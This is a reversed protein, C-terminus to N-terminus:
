TIPHTDTSCNKGVFCSFWLWESWRDITARWALAICGGKLWRDSYWRGHIITGMGLLTIRLCRRRAILLRRGILAKGDRLRLVGRWASRYIGGAPGAFFFPLPRQITNLMIASKSM